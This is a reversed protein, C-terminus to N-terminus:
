SLSMDISLPSVNDFVKRGTVIQMIKKLQSIDIMFHFPSGSKEPASIDKYNKYNANQISTKRM